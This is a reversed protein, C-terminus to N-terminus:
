ETYVPNHGSTQAKVPAQWGSITQVWLYNGGGGTLTSVWVARSPAVTISEMQGPPNAQTVSWESGDAGVQYLHQNEEVSTYGIVALRRGDLWAVDQVVVNPPSLVAPTDVRVQNGSRVVAGVLLQASNDSGAVVLAIRSGEPSLRVAKIQGGLPPVSVRIPTATQGNLTVRWLAAGQAVWVEDLGPAFAPRSTMGRLPTERLGLTSSGVVLVNDDGAVGAALLPGGSAPQHLAISDLFFRKQGLAGTVPNSDQQYIQGGDVYYVSAPPAPPAQGGSFDSSSFQSSQLNAIEVPVKNDAIQLRQGPLFPQFTLSLIEALKYRADDALQSSGPIDIQEPDGPRVVIRRPDLQAPLPPEQSVANQLLQRPGDVMQTLLWQSLDAPDTIASWRLDPVLYQNALDFFYLPYQRYASHFQADTLLVGQHPQSIRYQGDVRTLVYPFSTTGSPGPPAPAYEGHADITGEVRGTITVRHTTPDYQSAQTQDVITVTADSWQSRAATTLFSRASTNTSPDSASAMLFDLVIRLPAEGPTPSISPGPSGGIHVSEVTQPSSSTPVGTCASLLLLLAGFPAVAARRVSSRM